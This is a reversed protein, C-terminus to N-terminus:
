GALCNAEFLAKAREMARFAAMSDPSRLEPGEPLRGIFGASLDAVFPRPGTYAGMRNRADVTGCVAGARGIRLDAVRAEPDRIQKGILSLAARAAEAGIGAASSDVVTQAGAMGAGSLLLLSALITTRLRM